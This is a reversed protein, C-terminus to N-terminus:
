GGRGGAGVVEAQSPRPATGTAVLLTFWFTSGRGEVTEVGIRGGHAEVIGKAISLGLGAGQRGAQQAQWFPEFLRPLHRDPIGPGNDTVAVRLHGEGCSAQVTIRGGEPTFKLANDILNGLVQLLRDRDALVPPLGEPVESGITQLTARTRVATAQCAEAVVAALDLPAPSVALRRGAQLRSADLLDQILRDMRAANRRIIQLMPVQQERSSDSSLLAQAGVAIANLPNRLDHSVIALVEDRARVAGEAAQRQRDREEGLVVRRLVTSALHGLATAQAVDDADFAPRGPARRLVLAGLPSQDDVLPAVLAPGLPTSVVRAERAELPVDALAGPAPLTAGRPPGGEGVSAVVRWEDGELAREVHGQVSHTSDTAQRLVQQAAAEVTLAGSLSRAIERLAREQQVRRALVASLLHSRRALWAVASASILALLGLGTILRDQLARMELIQGRLRNERRLLQDDLQVAEQVLRRFLADRLLGRRSEEPTLTGVQPAPIVDAWAVKDQQLRRAAALVDPGLAEALPRLRGFHEQESAVAQEFERRYVEDGTLLYGRAAAMQTALDLQIRGLLDRSPLLLNVVERRGSEIRAAVVRPVALLSLLSTVVLGLPLWTMWARNRERPPRPASTETKEQMPPSPGEQLLM